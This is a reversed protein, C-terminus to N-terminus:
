PTLRTTEKSQGSSTDHPGKSGGHKAPTMTKTGEAMLGLVPESSVKQKKPARDGKPLPRKKASPKSSGTGMAGENTDKKKVAQLRIAARRKADDM